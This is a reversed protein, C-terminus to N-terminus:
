KVWAPTDMDMLIVAREKMETVTAINKTLTQKQDTWTSLTDVLEKPVDENGMLMQMGWKVQDSALDDPNVVGYAKLYDEKSTIVDQKEQALREYVTVVDELVTQRVALCDLSSLDIHHQAAIEEMVAQQDAIVEQLHKIKEPDKEQALYDVVVQYEFESRWIVQVVQFQKEDLGDTKIMVGNSM